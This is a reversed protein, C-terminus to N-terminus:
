YENHEGLLPGRAAVKGPTRSLKIPVGAVRIPTASGPQEIEVVMQRAAFHPDREIEAINLVPGFPIKGGLAEMLQAKTFKMFERNLDAILSARNASRHEYDGYRGDTLLHVADLTSCLTNFFSDQHAGVTVFGDKVPFMGFPCLFPHHNGEPGPVLGQVSHQWVMRECTALISDVMSVDVCQGEGSRRAEHIASLVGFALMMGPVIDGVGPGIKTPTDCDQGTIAMIGGMAQAVVDFAPWHEYPSAGGRKHGFGSLAGYVIRPNAEKLAQYGLGLREMVGPRFNEV